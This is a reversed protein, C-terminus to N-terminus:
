KSKKKEPCCDIYYNERIYNIHKKSKSLTTKAKQLAIKASDLQLDIAVKKQLILSDSKFISNDNTSTEPQSVANYPPYVVLWVFLIFTGLITIEKM